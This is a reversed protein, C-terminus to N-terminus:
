NSEINVPKKEIHSRNYSIKYKGSKLGVRKEEM